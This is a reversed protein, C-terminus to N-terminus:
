SMVFVAASGQSTLFVGDDEYAVMYPKDTYKQNMLYVQDGRMIPDGPNGGVKVITWNFNQTYDSSSYYYYLATTSWAGLLNYKGAAPETTQLQIVSGSTLTGSGGNIVLQIAPNSGGESSGNLQLQPWYEIGSDFNSVTYEDGNFVTSLEVQDGYSIVNQPPSPINMKLSWFFSGDDAYTLYVNDTAPIMSENTHNVNIFRLNAGYCVQPGGDQTNVIWQQQTYGPTYYYLDSSPVVFAGLQNYAGVATETTQIIVTDGNKISGTAGSPSILKLEVPNGQALTPYYEAGASMTSIYYGNQGEIWLSDGYRVEPQDAPVNTTPIISQSDILTAAPNAPETSGWSPFEYYSITIPDTVVSHSMDIIAYGHNYYGDTISLENNGPSEYSVQPYKQEYPDDSEAEEYSSCGLCVGMQLGFQGLAYLALNHEHGWIWAAVKNRFYPQFVSLLYSNLYPTDRYSSLKGNIADATSFLQHHSLLITNGTSKSLKDVHWQIETDQLWPGSYFTNFQNLPDSDNLGTDMGQFNWMGDETTLYFYSAAQNATSDFANLQELMPFFGYGLAYYDHNGPLTFVPVRTRSEFVTNFVDVVNQQCEEPTGSYYIDGLHIIVDPNHQDIMNEVLKIADDMGTGWDGIIAVQADNPLKYEIVGFDIQDNGAVTWDKYAYKGTYTAMYQTYTTLCTAWGSIDGGSYKRTAASLAEVRTQDNELQAEALQHHLSSLLMQRHPEYDLKLKEAAIPENNVAKVAHDSAATVMPHKLLEKQTPKQGDKELMGRVSSTVASQWMSLKRSRVTRIVDNKM